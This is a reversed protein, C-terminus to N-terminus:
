RSPWGEWIMSGDAVFVVCDRTSAGVVLAHTTRVEPRARWSEGDFHQIAGGVAAWVDDPGTGWLSTISGPSVDNGDEALAVATWVAGDWHRLVPALSGRENARLEGAVWVDDPSSAWVASHVDSREGPPM